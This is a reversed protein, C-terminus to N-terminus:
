AAVALFAPQQALLQLNVEQWQEGNLDTYLHGFYSPAAAPAAASATFVDTGRLGALRDVLLACNVDFVANLAVLRTTNRGTDAKDKAQVQEGFVFAAFDVVGFVRGRLSAVGRFWPQTYPVAHAAGANFIEGAHTLPFLFKRGGAEVALWSPGTGESRANRLREELRQQLDEKSERKAM